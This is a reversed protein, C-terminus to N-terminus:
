IVWLQYKNLGTFIMNILSQVGTAGGRLSDKISDLPPTSSFPGGGGGRGALFVAGVGGGLYSDSTIMFM